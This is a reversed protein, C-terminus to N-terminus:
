GAALGSASVAGDWLMGLLSSKGVYGCYGVVLGCGGEPRVCWASGDVDEVEVFLVLLVFM